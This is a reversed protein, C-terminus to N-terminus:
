RCKEGTSESGQPRGDEHSVCVRFHLRPGIREIRVGGPLEIKRRRGRAIVADAAAEIREFGVGRMSVGLRQLILVVVETQVARPLAPFAKAALSIEGDARDVALRNVADEAMGRLVENTRRAQTALRVLASTVKPNIMAEISPLVRHRIRNRTTADADDNSADHVHGIDRHDLYARLDSRRMELLPRVLWIGSGPRTERRPAMGALGRLGTGRAVHHLVTEAQDDAHHGVAISRAGTTTAVGELFEYRLRRGTEEITDGSQAAAERVNARRVTCDLGLGAAAEAVFRAETEAEDRLAHDVHAVHLTWDRNHIENVAHLGHLLAMSDAGGSVACVIRSGAPILGEAVEFLRM